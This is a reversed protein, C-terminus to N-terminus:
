GGPGSSGVKWLHRMDRQVAASRPASSPAATGSDTDDTSSDDHPAESEALGSGDRSRASIARPRDRGAAHNKYYSHTIALVIECGKAEKLRRASAERVEFVDKYIVEGPKINACKHLWNQALGLLGIRVGNWVCVCESQVDGLPRGEKDTMNSSIWTTSSGPYIINRHVVGHVADLLSQMGFDLEHNGFTGYHVGIMNLAEIMHRRGKLLVSELSPGMFDGSFVVLCNTRSQLERLKTLFRSAGGVLGSKSDKHKYVDLHYVDNFHAITVTRDALRV